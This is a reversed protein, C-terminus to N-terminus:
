RGVAAQDAVHAVVRQFQALLQGEPARCADNGALRCSLVWPREVSFGVLLAIKDLAPETPEFIEAADSCAVVLQGAIEGGGNSQSGDDRPPGSRTQLRTMM